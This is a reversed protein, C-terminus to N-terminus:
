KTARIVKVAQDCSVRVPQLVGFTPDLGYQEHHQALMRVQDICIVVVARQESQATALPTKATKEVLGGIAFSATEMQSIVATYQDVAGTFSEKDLYLRLEAKALIESLSQYANTARTDADKIYAPAFYDCGAVALVVLFVHLKM